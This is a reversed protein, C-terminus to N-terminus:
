NEEELFLKNSFFLTRSVLQFELRTDFDKGQFECRGNSDVVRRPCSVHMSFDGEAPCM